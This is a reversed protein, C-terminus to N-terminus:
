TELHIQPPIYHFTSYCYEALITTDPACIMCGPRLTSNNAPTNTLMLPQELITFTEGFPTYAYTDTISGSSNALVRTVGGRSQSILEIGGLVYSALTAGSSDTELLVDGFASTEDWLCNTVDTGRTQKVRWGDADYTNPITLSSLL